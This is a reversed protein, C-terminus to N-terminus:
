GQRACPPRPREEGRKRRFTRLMPCNASSAPPPAGDSSFGSPPGAPPPRPASAPPPLVAPAGVRLRLKTYARQPGMADDRRDAPPRRHRCRPRLSLELDHSGDLAARDGSLREVVPEGCDDAAFDGRHASRVATTSRIPIPWRPSLITSRRAATSSRSNPARACGGTALAASGAGARPTAARSLTRAETVATSIVADRLPGDLAASDAQVASGRGAVAPAQLYRGDRGPPRRRAAAAAVAATLLPWYRARVAGGRHARVARAARSGANPRASPPADRPRHDLREPPQRLEFYARNIEAARAADGGSRDPHYRKILRRYAEEVAARDAGPELGLAAYASTPGPM